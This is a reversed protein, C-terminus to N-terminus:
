ATIATGNMNGVKAATLATTAGVAVSPGMGITSNLTPDNYYNTTTAPTGGTGSALADTGATWTVGSGTKVTVYGLAINGAPVAPLALIAAAETAANLTASWTLVASSDSTKVSLLASSWKDAVIVQATGTDFNTSAALTGLVGNNSYQVAVGNKIDFNSNIAFAPNTYVATLAHTRVLNILTRVTAAWTENNVLDAVAKNYQVLLDRKTGSREGSNDHSKTTTAAGAM